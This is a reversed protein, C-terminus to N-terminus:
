IKTNNATLRENGTKKIFYYLTSQTNKSGILKKVRAETRSNGIFLPVWLGIAYRIVGGKGRVTLPYLLIRRDHDRVPVAPFIRDSVPDQM